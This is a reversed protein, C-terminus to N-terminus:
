LQLTIAAPCHDSAKINGKVEPFFKKVRPPEGPQNVRKPQGRREIIPFVNPNKDALSRSIFIYDLQRYSKDGKYYHTWREGKQLREVVNVMKNTELLKRIGSLTEKGPEIYDNFDGLVVFDHSGYDQGFRERLIKLVEESQAERRYRSKARGRMMSTFHNVFIPLTHGNINVHVELCDRSFINSRGKRRFQHTRIFDIPFNSMLAVDIFRNDNGDIVMQYKFKKSKMYRSNFRKLTDLCEVEQLGLIDAKVAKIAKATLKRVPKLTTNFINKDIIFGDKVATDLEKPTYPRYATKGQADKIKKGKFNYRTFLNEINFTAITFTTSM